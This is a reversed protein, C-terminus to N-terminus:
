SACGAVSLPHLVDVPGGVVRPEPHSATRTVPQWEAKVTREGDLTLTLVGGDPQASPWWWAFNGLGYAVFADGIRGMGQITHSHAGAVVDAGADVLQRALTVQSAVACRNQQVGWHLMVVVPGDSSASRVASILRAPDAVHATGPTQATASWDATPDATPDDDLSAAFVTVTTGRVDIRAPAYADDLDKGVGIIHPVATRTRIALTDSLGDRGYDLAHNNAMTLVDVGLDGLSRVDQEGARFVYRKDSKTGGDTLATEFNVIAVDAARLPAFSQQYSPDALNVPPHAHVDGALAVTLTEPHSACAGLGSSALAIALVTRLARM